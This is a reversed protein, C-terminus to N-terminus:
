GLGNGADLSARVIRGVPTKEGGYFAYETDCWRCRLPCGTLRVFFCPLGTWTSEGQISSFMETVHLTPETEM